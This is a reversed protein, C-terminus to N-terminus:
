TIDQIFGHILQNQDAVRPLAAGSERRGWVRDLPHTIDESSIHANGLLQERERKDNSSLCVWCAWNNFRRGAM